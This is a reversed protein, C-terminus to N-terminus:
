KSLTAGVQNDLWDTMVGGDDLWQIESKVGMMLMVQLEHRLESADLSMGSTASHRQLTALAHKRDRNTLPSIPDRCNTSAISPRPTQSSGHSQSDSPNMENSLECSMNHFQLLHFSKIGLWQMNTCPQSFAKLGRSGYRYCRYINLGDPDFDVLTFVPLRSQAENLYCLFSKTTM